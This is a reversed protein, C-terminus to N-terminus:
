PGFNRLSQCAREQFMKLTIAVVIFPFTSLGVPANIFDMLDADKYVTFRLLVLQVSEVLVGSVLQKCTQLRLLIM